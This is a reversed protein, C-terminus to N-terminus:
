HGQFCPTPNREMGLRPDVHTHSVSFLAQRPWMFTQRHRSCLFPRSPIRLHESCSICSSWQAAAESFLCHGHTPPLIKSLCGLRETREDRCRTGSPFHKNAFSFRVTVTQDTCPRPVSVYGMSLGRTSSNIPPLYRTPM